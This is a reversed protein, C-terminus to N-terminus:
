ARTRWTRWGSTPTGRARRVAWSWCLRLGRRGAQPDTVVEVDWGRMSGGELLYDVAPVEAGDREVLFERQYALVGHMIQWAANQQVSLQRGHFTFEVVEDLEARLEDQPLVAEDVAARGGTGCESPLRRDPQAVARHGRGRCAVPRIAEGDLRLCRRPVSGATAMSDRSATKGEGGPVGEECPRSVIRDADEVDYM